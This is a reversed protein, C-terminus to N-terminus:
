ADYETARNDNSIIYPKENFDSSLDVISERLRSHRKFACVKHLLIMSSIVLFFGAFKFFSKILEVEFKHLNQLSCLGAFITDGYFNVCFKCLALLLVMLATPTRKSPTEDTLSGAGTTPNTGGTTIKQTTTPSITPIIIVKENIWELYRSVEVYGGVLSANRNKPDFKAFSLVGCVFKASTSSDKCV